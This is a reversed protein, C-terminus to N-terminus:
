LKENVVDAATSNDTQIPTPPHPWGMEILTKRMPVLEKSTIFIAGLEYEAASSMFCKHSSCYNIHTWEMNTNTMKRWSSTPEQDAEARPNMTSDLMQTRSLCWKATDTYLLM